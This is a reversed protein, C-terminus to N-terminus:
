NIKYVLGLNFLDARPSHGNVSQYGTYDYEGRLDWNQMLKTQMGVGVQGGTATEGANTFRSNVVGARLFAMTSDNVYYGPIVSVGYGYTTKLSYPGGGNNSNLTGTGLVGLVEGGLYINQNITAGYGAFATLPVGRYFGYSNSNDVIGLSGGVYPSNTAYALTSGTALIATAILLKKFM